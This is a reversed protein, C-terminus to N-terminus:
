YQWTVFKTKILGIVINLLSVVIGIFIIGAIAKTYNAYTLSVRVYYGMGSTAGIMEAATLTMLATALNIPLNNIIRPLNFPIIIKFLMPLTKMNLVKASNIVKKEVFATNNISGMFSGWFVSLFVVTLSAMFFTPMILVIYSTYILPPVTSIAKVIPYVANTLRPVWGVLTGLIVAFFLALFVGLLILIMSSKFGELINLYDDYFVYFVNEPAPVFAFPLLNFRSVGVEWILLFAYVFAAIDRAARNRKKERGYILFIAEIIILVVGFAKFDRLGNRMEADYRSPLFSAAWIMLFLLNALNIFTNRFFLSKKKVESLSDNKVATIDADAISSM